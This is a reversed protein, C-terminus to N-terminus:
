AGPHLIIGERTPFNSAVHAPLQCVLFEFSRANRAIDMITFSYVIGAVVLQSWPHQLLIILIPSTINCCRWNSAEHSELLLKTGSIGAVCYVM